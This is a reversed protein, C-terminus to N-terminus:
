FSNFDSDRKASLLFLMWIWNHHEARSWNAFLFILFGVVCLSVNICLLKKKIKTSFCSESWKIVGGINRLKEVNPKKKKEKGRRQASLQALSSFFFKFSNIKTRWVNKLSVDVFEAERVFRKYLQPRSMLLWRFCKWHRCSSNGRDAQAEETKYPFDNKFAFFFTCSFDRSYKGECTQECHAVNTLFCDASMINTLWMAAGRGALTYKNTYRSYIIKWLKRSEFSKRGLWVM